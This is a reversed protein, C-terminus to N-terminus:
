YNTHLVDIEWSELLKQFKDVRVLKHFNFICVFSDINQNGCVFISQVSQLSETLFIKNAQDLKVVDNFKQIQTIHM